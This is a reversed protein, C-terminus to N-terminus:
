RRRRTSRRRTNKKIKRRNRTKKMNGGWLCFGGFCGSRGVVPAEPVRVVGEPFTSVEKEVLKARNVASSANNLTLKTPETFGTTGKIPNRYQSIRTRYQSILNPTAFALRDYETGVKKQNYTNPVSPVRPGYYPTNLRQASTTTYSKGSWERRQRTLNNLSVTSNLFEPKPINPPNKLYGLNPLGLPPERVTVEQNFMNTGEQLRKERAAAIM